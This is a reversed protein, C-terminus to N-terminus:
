IPVVKTKLKGDVPDVVISCKKLGKQSSVTVNAEKVLFGYRMLKVVGIADEIATHAVSSDYGARALCQKTSPPIEDKNIDIFLATPDIVRYSNELLYWTDIRNLFQLDFSAFNKGAFVVKETLENTRLFEKFYHILNSPSYYEYGKERTAIRRFITPHMSLAYADGHYRTHKSKEQLTLNKYQEDVRWPLVYGHFRPLKDYPKPNKLDDIVAGFEVIDDKNPDLGTTEIDISVYKMRLDDDDSTLNNCSSM